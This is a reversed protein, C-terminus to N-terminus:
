RSRRRAILAWALAAFNLAFGIAPLWRPIEIRDLLQLAFYGIGFFLCVAVLATLSQRADDTM